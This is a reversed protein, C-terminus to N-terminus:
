QCTSITSWLCRITFGRRRVDYRQAHAEELELTIANYQKEVFRQEEGVECLLILLAHNVM